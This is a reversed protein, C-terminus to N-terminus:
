RQKGPKFGLSERMEATAKKESKKLNSKAEKLTQTSIPKNLIADKLVRFLKALRGELNKSMKNEIEPTFKAACQALRARIPVHVNKLTAKFDEIMNSKVQRSHDSVNVEGLYNQFAQASELVRSAKRYDGILGEMSIQVKTAIISHINQLNQGNLQAQDLDLLIADSLSSKLSVLEKIFEPKIGQVSNIYKEIAELVMPRLERKDQLKQEESAQKRQQLNAQAIARIKQSEEIFAKNYEEKSIKHGAKVEDLGALSIKYAQTTPLEFVNAVRMLLEFKALQNATFKGYDNLIKAAWHANSAPTEDNGYGTVVLHAEIFDRVDDKNFFDLNNLREALEATTIDYRDFSM